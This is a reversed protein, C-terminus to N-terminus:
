GGDFSCIKFLVMAGADIEVGHTNQIINLSEFASHYTKQIIKGTCIALWSTLLGHLAKTMKDHPSGLATQSEVFLCYGTESSTKGFSAFWFNTFSSSPNCPLTPVVVNWGKGKIFQTGQQTLIRFHTIAKEQKLVRLLSISFWNLEIFYVVHEKKSRHFETIRVRSKWQCRLYSYFVFCDLTLCSDCGHLWSDSIRM